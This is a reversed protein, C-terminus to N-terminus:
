WIKVRQEPALYLPDGQKVDFASYWADVNRVVGNIRYMAPSHPDSMVQNRLAEDRYLTRWVQAWGLFFRQDGNYGDYKPAPKNELSLQYARYAVNLGGVDGINEGLTLRGNVKIGPLPEFASYQDALVDTRKKFAEVDSAGWWNRLVGKADSKAGQDDFGHGMEHGIVGGIGGYNVAADAEPDFFPPQLIAAPFVIENFVPNYYANVVQPAMFWEDKDTPKGLKAREYEHEWVQARKANGFADGPVVELTSYNRWKSPYGIKPRFAALKELAVKKTDPTMWDVGQIRTAYAKRLNEVLRDMKAKAEPKFYRAVYLEGVAEGLSGNLASVGRKWRARQEPQGNLTKGYFEFVETDLATPLVHAEEKLFHYTLYAKWTAVPTKAFLEALKPIATVERVVVSKEKGYGQADMYAKWPFKPSEKELEAITRPNYTKDRERREAIPWHCEAIEKELAVIAAANKAADKDNVMGLVKAIHGEYKKRIEEFQPDTKRYYEREPLGLGSQGVEIIYKDPDKQDLDVGMGIPAKVPLDPRGMLKVIDTLTKAGAIADLGPKAPAFGKKDLASTDQYAAYFDSVKQSNSGKENKGKALEEVIKKVNTDSEERLEDFAGWRSRDSPIKNSKQWTGGAFTSFDKGPKVSKDMGAVDVGFTGLKPKGTFPVSPGDATTATNEVPKANGPQAAPPAAPTACAAAAAILAVVSSSFLIPRSM